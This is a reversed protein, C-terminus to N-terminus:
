VLSVRVFSTISSDKDINKLEGNKEDKFNEFMNIQSGEITETKKTEKLDVIDKNSAFFLKQTTEKIRKFELEEFIKNLKDSNPNELKFKTKEFDM